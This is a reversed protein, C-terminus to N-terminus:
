GIVEGQTTSIEEGVIVKLPALEQLELAGAIENHDTLAVADLRKRQCARIIMSLSSCADYSWVSHLHLDIRWLHVTSGGLIEIDLREARM